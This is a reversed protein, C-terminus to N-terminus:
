EEVMASEEGKGNNNEENINLKFNKPTIEFKLEQLNQLNQKEFINKLENVKLNFLREKEEIEKNFKILNKINSTTKEVNEQNFESAYSLNRRNQEAQGNDVVRDEPLYKKPLKWEKPLSLDFVLYKEIKRISKVYGDLELYESYLSM